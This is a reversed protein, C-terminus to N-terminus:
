PKELILKAFRELWGSIHPHSVALGSYDEMIELIGARLKDREKLAKEIANHWPNGERHLGGSGGLQMLKALAKAEYEKSMDTM